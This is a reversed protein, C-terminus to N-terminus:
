EGEWNLQNIFNNIANIEYISLAVSDGYDTKAEVKKFNLDFKIIKDFFMFKKNFVIFANDKRMLEYGLLDFLDYNLVKNEMNIM